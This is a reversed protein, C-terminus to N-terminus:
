VKHAQNLGEEDFDTKFWTDLIAGIAEPKTEKLSLCLINADDWKRALATIEPNWCLAARVGAVKNAAMCVGTGSWCFAIAQDADGSAVKEGAERGIDAWQWKQEESLMHGLLEVTHGKEKLYEVAKEAVPMKEDSTVKIKM